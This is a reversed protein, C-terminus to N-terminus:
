GFERRLAAVVDGFAESIQTTYHLEQLGALNSFAQCGRERVIIARSFGLRGQFLGTEHVVNQRARLAGDPQEDEPTHVLIAFAARDVLRALVETMPQGVRPESDFAIVHYGHHDRLHDALERWATGRGHGIFVSPSAGKTPQRRDGAQTSISFPVGTLGGALNANMMEYLVPNDTREGSRTEGNLLEHETLWRCDPGLALPGTKLRVGYAWVEYRTLVGMTRSVGRFELPLPREWHLPIIDFQRGEELKQGFALEEILEQAAATPPEEGPEIRGGIIQYQAAVNDWHFLYHETGDLLTKVLVCAVRRTRLPAAREGTIRLRKGEMLSLLHPGSDLLASISVDVGVGPRMWNNVLQEANAIYWALSRTFYTSMESRCRYQGNQETLVDFATLFVLVTSTTLTAGDTDQGIQAAIQVSSLPQDEHTPIASLIRTVLRRHENGGDGTAL